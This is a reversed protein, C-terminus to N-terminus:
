NSKPLFVSIPIYMYMNIDMGVYISLYMYKHIYIYIHICIYMYTFVHVLERYMGFRTLNRTSVESSHIEVRTYHVHIEFHKCNQFISKICHAESCAFVIHSHQLTATHQLTNCHIATHQLTNYHTAIHQLTNCHQLTATAGEYRSLSQGQQVLRQNKSLLLVKCCDIIELQHQKLDV